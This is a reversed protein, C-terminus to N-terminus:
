LGFTGGSCSMLYILSKKPKPEFYIFECNQLDFWYVTYATIKNTLDAIFLNGGTQSQTTELWNIKSGHSIRWEVGTDKRPNQFTCGPHKKPLKIRDSFEVSYLVITSDNAGSLIHTAPAFAPFCRSPCSHHPNKPDYVQSASSSHVNFTHIHTKTPLKWVEINGNGLATALYKGDISVCIQHVHPPNVLQTESEGVLHHSFHLSLFDAGYEQVKPQFIHQHNGVLFNWQVITTDLSGSLVEEPKGPRFAITSCM